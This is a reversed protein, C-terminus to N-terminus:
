ARAKRYHEVAFQKLGSVIINALRMVLNLRTNQLVLYELFGGVNVVGTVHVDGVEPLDKKVGTGPKLAGDGLAVTGVNEICGLCADIAIIFSEPHAARIRDLTEHLNTAHVPQELTGYVKFPNPRYQSLRTGVLPGLSDGTSRDTGICLLIVPRNTDCGLRKVRKKLESAFKAAAFPDDMHFRVLDKETSIPLLVQAEPM